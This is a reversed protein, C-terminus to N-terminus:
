SKLLYKQVSFHDNPTELWKASCESTSSYSSKLGKKTDICGACFIRSGRLLLLLLLLEERFLTHELVCLLGLSPLDLYLHSAWVKAALCVNAIMAAFAPKTCLWIRATSPSLLETSVVASCNTSSNNEFYASSQM